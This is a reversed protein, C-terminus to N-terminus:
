FIWYVIDFFSSFGLIITTIAVMTISRRVHTAVPPGCVNQGDNWHRRCFPFMAYAGLFPLTNHLRGVLIVNWVVGFCWFILVSQLLCMFLISVMFLWHLVTVLLSIWSAFSRFIWVLRAHAHRLGVDFTGIWCKGLGLRKVTSTKAVTEWFLVDRYGNASSTSRMTFYFSTASFFKLGGLIGMLIKSLLRSQRVSRYSFTDALFRFPTSKYRKSFRGISLSM